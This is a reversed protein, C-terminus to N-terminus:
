FGKKTCVSTVLTRSASSISLYYVLTQAGIWSKGERRHEFWCAEGRNRGASGVNIGNEM